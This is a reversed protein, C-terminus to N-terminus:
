FIFVLFIKISSIFNLIECLIYSMKTNRDTFSVIAILLILDLKEEFLYKGLLVCSFLACRAGLEACQRYGLGLGVLVVCCFGAIGTPATLM